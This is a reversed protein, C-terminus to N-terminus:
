FALATWGLWGAECECRGCEEGSWAARECVPSSVPGAAPDHPALETGGGRLVDRTVNLSRFMECILFYPVFVRVSGASCITGQSCVLLMKPLRLQQPGATSGRRPGHPGRKPDALALDPM